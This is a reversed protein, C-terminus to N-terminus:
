GPADDGGDMNSVSGASHPLRSGRSVASAGM